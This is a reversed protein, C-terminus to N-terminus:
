SGDNLKSDQFFFNAAKIYSKFIGILEFIRNTLESNLKSNYYLEQKM